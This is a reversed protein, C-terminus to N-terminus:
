PHRERALSITENNIHLVSPTSITWEPNHNQTYTVWKGIAEAESHAIVIGTRYGVKGPKEAIVTVVYVNESENETM